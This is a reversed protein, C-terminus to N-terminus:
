FPLLQVHAPFNLTIKNYFRKKLLWALSALLLVHMCTEQTAAPSIRRLSELTKHRFLQYQYSSAAYLQKNLTLIVFLPRLQDVRQSAGQM